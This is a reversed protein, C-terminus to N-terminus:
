RRTGARLVAGNVGVLAFGILFVTWWPADARLWVFRLPSVFVVLAFAFLALSAQAVPMPHQSKVSILTDRSRPLLVSTTVDRFFALPV